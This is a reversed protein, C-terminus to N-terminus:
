RRRLHLEPRLKSPKSTAAVHYEALM